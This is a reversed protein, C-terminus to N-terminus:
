WRKPPYAPRSPLQGPALAIPAGPDEPAPPVGGLLRDVLRAVARHDLPKLLIAAVDTRASAAVDPSGSMLIIPANPQTERAVQIVIEGSHDPM